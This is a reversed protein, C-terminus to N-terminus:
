NNAARPRGSRARSFRKYFRSKQRSDKCYRSFDNARQQRQPEASRSRRQDDLADNTLAVVLVGHLKEYESGHVEIDTVKEFSLVKSFFDVSRDMDSVTMGVVDVSKVIQAFAANGAS